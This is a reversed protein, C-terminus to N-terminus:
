ATARCVVAEVLDSASAAISSPLSPVIMTCHAISMEEVERISWTVIRLRGCSDVGAIRIGRRAYIFEEDAM